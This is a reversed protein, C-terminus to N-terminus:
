TSWAWQGITEKVNENFRIDTLIIYYLHLPTLSYASYSNQILLVSSGAFTKAFFSLAGLPAECLCRMEM